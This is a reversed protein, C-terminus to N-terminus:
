EEDNVFSIVTNDSHFSGNPASYFRNIKSPKKLTSSEDLDDHNFEMDINFTNNKILLKDLIGTDVGKFIKNEHCRKKEEEMVEVNHSIWRKRMFLFIGFDIEDVNLIVLDSRLLNSAHEGM